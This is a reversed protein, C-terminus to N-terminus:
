TIQSSYIPCQAEDLSGTTTGLKEKRWHSSSVGPQREADSFVVPVSGLTGDPPRWAPGLPGLNNLAATHSVWLPVHVGARAIEERAVRLFHSEIVDDDFVVLVAPQAGHDDVPRHSSYYRLYPALRSAMTVPRVARREWELFFPWEREGYRVTGFADPRVSHLRGEYRFHRSARSPPDLRVVEWGETRRCQRALAAIFAHVAGTHEINRLLQRSRSGSVNRWTVPAKPDFPTVSWRKLAMVAAVRDRRSLLTLGRDTLALRRVSARTHTVLDLGRLRAVLRSLQSRKVGLLGGLDASAIWPWDFLLDLTRKEAPTLLAPLLHDPTDQEPQSRQLDEPVAARAASPEFPLEGGAKAHGLATRLDLVDGLSPLHWIPDGADSLAADEESALFSVAPASALQRRAQRLRVGNPAVALLVSPLPGELLRWLRKAFATRDSTTGQRVVAITRGDELVIGADLPMGGYWHFRRIRGLEAVTAVVRYIVGVADLRRLLMRQWQRSVPFLALMREATTDAEMALRDLGAATISYRRTSSILPAGHGVSTVLGDDELSAVHEYASGRSWGSVAALELRDLFPMSALLWLAETSRAEGSM